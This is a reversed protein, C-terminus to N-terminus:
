NKIVKEVITKNSYILKLIYMGKSFNATNVWIQREANGNYRKDWVLQGAANYVQVAQLDTPPQIAHHHITFSGNFPNPYILYGQDKLKQPLTRSTININDLWINNQKNGKSTFYLQFNGTGVSPSLHIRVHKWEAARTPTYNNIFTYNPDNVTQLENGFKKWVSTFTAGCDNTALVELTDLPFVTSGPYQQGARYSLDFDVFL